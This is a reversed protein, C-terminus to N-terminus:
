LELFGSKESNYIELNRIKSSLLWFLILSAADLSILTAPFRRFHQRSEIRTLKFCIDFHTIVVRASRGDLM